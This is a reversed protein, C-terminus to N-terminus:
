DHESAIFSTRSSVKFKAKANQPIRMLTKEAKEIRQEAKLLPPLKAHGLIDSHIHFARYIDEMVRIYKILASIKTILRVSKGDTDVHVEHRAVFAEMEAKENGWVLSVVQVGPRPLLRIGMREAVIVTGHVMAVAIPNTYGSAAVKVSAPYHLRVEALTGKQSDVVYLKSMDETDKVLEVLLKPWNPAKEILFFPTCNILIAHKM